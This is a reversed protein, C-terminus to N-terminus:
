IQVTFSLRSHKCEKYIKNVYLGYVLWSWDQDNVIYHLPHYKIDERSMTSLLFFRDKSLISDWVDQM